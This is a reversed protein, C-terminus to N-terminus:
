TTQPDHGAPNDAPKSFPQPLPDKPMVICCVIYAIIGPLPPFITILVWGVRVLTVDIELYRAFGACVGALMKGERPRSLRSSRYAGSRAAASTSAGCNACYRVNEGLSNGCHACYM